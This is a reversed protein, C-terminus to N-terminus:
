VNACICVNAYACMQVCCVSSWTYKCECVDAHVCVCMRVHKCVVCLHKCTLVCMQSCVHLGACATQVCKCYVDVCAQVACMQMCLQVDVHVQARVQVRKCVGCVNARSYVDVCVCVGECAVSACATQVHKYM